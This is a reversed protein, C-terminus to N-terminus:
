INSEKIQKLNEIKKELDEWGDPYTIIINETLKKFIVRYKEMYSEKNYNKIDILSIVPIDYLVRANVLATSSYGIICQINYQLFLDEVPIGKSIIKFKNVSFKSLFYEYKDLSEKPHPKIALNLNKSIVLSIVKELFKLEEDSGIRGEEIDPATVLIAFIDEKELNIFDNRKKLVNKYLQINVPNPFLVDDKKDFLFMKKTNVLKFLTNEILDTIIFSSKLKIYLKLRNRKNLKNYNRLVYGSIINKWIKRPNYTGIGSEILFFAPHYKFSLNKNIFLSILNLDINLVSGFYIKKNEKRNHNINKISLLFKFIQKIVIIFSGPKEDLFHFQVDSYKVCSFFSENLTFGLSQPVIIIIGKPIQNEKKKSLEYIFADAGIAQWYSGVKIIFDIDSENMKQAIHDLLIPYNNFIM